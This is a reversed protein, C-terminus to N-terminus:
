FTAAILILSIVFTDVLILIITTLCSFRTLHFLMAEDFSQFAKKTSPIMGTIIEPLGFASLIPFPLLFVLRWQV